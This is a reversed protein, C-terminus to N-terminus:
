GKMDENVKALSEPVVRAIRKIASVVGISNRNIESQITSRVKVNSIHINYSLSDFVIGLMKVTEPDRAIKGVLTIDYYAPVVTDHSSAMYADLLFGTREPDAINSPICYMFPNIM